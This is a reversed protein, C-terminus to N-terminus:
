LSNMMMLNAANTDGSIKQCSARIETQVYIYHLSSDLGKLANHM